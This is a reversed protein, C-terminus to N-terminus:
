RVGSDTLKTRKAILMHIFSLIGTRPADGTAQWAALMARTREMRLSIVADM